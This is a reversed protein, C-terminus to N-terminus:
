KKSKSMKILESLKLRKGYHLVASSYLKISIYCMLVTTAILIALSLILQWVPINASLMRAPMSFPASFPVLSAAVAATSEPSMSTMYAFYFSIMTIIAIPMIAQQIDESKSVTAGCVANLMAYLAFGVIFYVIIMVVALPTFISINIAAGDIGFKKPYLFTYTIVSIIIIGLLDCLGLLGMGLSKGIVIKSPKTSTILIEMVRSTKESAISMAVWYGFMYIAFFLIFTVAFSAIMGGATGRGVPISSYSIDENVQKITASSVGANKLLKASYAKRIANSLNSGSPTDDGFDTASKVYLNFKLASNKRSLEVLCLKRDEKIKNLLASKQSPQKMVFNCDPMESSLIEVAGNLIGDADIVYVDQKKTSASNNSDNEKNPNSVASIIAPICIIAIVLLYTIVTSIIFAKKRAQQRFTFGMISLIGKM